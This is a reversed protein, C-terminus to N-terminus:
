PAGATNAPRVHAALFAALRRKANARVDMYFLNVDWVHYNLGPFRFQAFPGEPPPTVWLFGDRGCHAALLAPLPAPLEDTKADLPPVAGLHDGRRSAAYDMRWTVPNVCLMTTGGRPRGSIGPAGEFIDSIPAPDGGEGFTQWGIICGTDTEERCPPIGIAGLDEEVSIPWGILYGAVLRARLAPDKAVRRAILHLGHLAGQSHGVILFPTDPGIRKLFEDFAAAVDRYALSLAQETDADAALFAGFATQRYYPAYVPGTPRFASAQGALVMNLFGRTSPEDLPANWYEKGLYTTPHIYFAAAGTGSQPEIGRPTLGAPGERDPLAAWAEDRAYDPAAPVPLSDYPEELKLQRIAYWQAEDWFINLIIAMTVIVAIFAAIAILFKRAM